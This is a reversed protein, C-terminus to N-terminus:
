DSHFTIHVPRVFSLTVCVFILTKQHPYASSPSPSSRLPDSLRFTTSGFRPHHLHILAPPTASNTKLVNAWEQWKGSAGSLEKDGKDEESKYIEDCKGKVVRM